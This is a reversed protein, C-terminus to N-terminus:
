SSTASTTATATTACSAPAPPQRMSERARPIGGEACAKAVPSDGKAVRCPEPSADGRRSAFLVGLGAVVLTMLVPRHM